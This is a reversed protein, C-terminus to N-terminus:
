PYTQSLGQGLLESIVCYGRECAYLISGWRRWALRLSSTKWFSGTRSFRVGSVILLPKLLEPGHWSAVALYPSAFAFFFNSAGVRRPGVHVFVRPWSPAVRVTISLVLLSGCPYAFFLSLDRM